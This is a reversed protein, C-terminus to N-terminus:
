AASSSSQSGAVTPPTASSTGCSGRRPRPRPAPRRRTTSAGSSGAVSASANSSSGRCRRQVAAPYPFHSPRRPAAADRAAVTADSGAKRHRAGRSSSRGAALGGGLRTREAAGLARPWPPWGRPPAWCPSCRRGCGLALAAAAVGPVRADFVLERGDALTQGVVLAALLCPALLPMIAAVPRAAARRRAGGHGAGKLAVTAVGVGAVAVWAATVRAERVRPRHGRGFRRRRDAAGAPVVPTLVFAILAGTLAAARARAATSSGSWCRWSCRPSCRTSGTTPRTASASGGLVGAVTGACWAVMLTLGAGLLRGRDVRGDTQAVAWSEDVALQAEAVGACAPGRLSPAVSIGIALYRLNLLVAAVIAAAVAGGSELVSAVAFQASGAFTTFSMVIPAVVGMGADRALIGFSAGFAAAAIAIPLAARAGPTSPRGQPLARRDAMSTSAEM